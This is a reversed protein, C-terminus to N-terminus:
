RVAHRPYELQMAVVYATGTGCRDAISDLAQDLAEAPPRGEIDFSPLAAPMDTGIRDPVIRVGNRTVVADPSGAFTLAQSRYTRSWSDAVLALSVEDMGPSLAIGRQEHGWFALINVLVATAFPRTQRFAGSDHRAGWATLGLDAAVEGARDHGAIAEILTLMMPISASIGTTTVVGKDVVM